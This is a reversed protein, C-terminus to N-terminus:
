KPMHHVRMSEEQQREGRGGALGEGRRAEGTEMVLALKSILGMYIGAHMEATKTNQGQNM